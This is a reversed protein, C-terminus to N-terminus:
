GGAPASISSGCAGNSNTFAYAFANLWANAYIAITEMQGHGSGDCCGFDFLVVILVVGCIGDGAVGDSCSALAANAAM